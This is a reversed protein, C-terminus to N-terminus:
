TRSKPSPRHFPIIAARELAIEIESALDDVLQLYESCREDRRPDSSQEWRRLEAQADAFDTCLERFEDDRAAREEIAQGQFPFRRRAAVVGRDM